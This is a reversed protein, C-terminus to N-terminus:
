KPLIITFVTRDNKTDLEIMGGHGKTVIDYSLSLGLGTGSGTPKTTFFPQFIKEKISEPIGNGNDKVSIEVKGNLKKTSVTVTPEYGFTKQKAKENVAYFANNILNLVVRGIDQPVININGISQDFDTKITANFSKDKARLGHYALRLYEDCLANIDTPEKQGSSTRSHQLMGKVIADARKGHYNIKEENAIVDNILDNQLADDREENPKLRETKLEEMLEKNVDSFNNVFNLPNQIEHAIGATLEGLSAMKESQILQSQTAKLQHYSEEIEKKAKQKNRNNRYLFFAIIVLTFSIGLLINTRIKNEYEEKASAIEDQRQQQDIDVLDNFGSMKSIYSLSDGYTVALKSYYFAKVPNENSYLDVFFTAVDKVDRYMKNQIAEDLAAEGYYICSDMQGVANFTRAIFLYINGGAYRNSRKRFYYLASDFKHQDFYLHGLRFHANDSIWDVNISNALDLAKHMYYYASDLVGLDQYEKGVISLYISAFESSNVTPSQFVLCADKRYKLSEEHDGIDHYNAGLLALFHGKWYDMGWKESKALGQFNVRLASTTNGLTNYSLSLLQLGELEGEKYGIKRSLEIVKSTYFIGSDARSFKHYNALANWVKVQNTDEKQIKNELLLSDYNVQASSYHTFGVFLTIALILSKGKCLNRNEM